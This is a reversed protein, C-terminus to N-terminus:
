LFKLEIINKLKKIYLFKRVTKKTKKLTLGNLDDNSNEKPSNGNVLGNMRFMPPPVPNPPNNMAPPPPPISSGLNGRPMLGNRDDDETLDRFDLDCLILDRDLNKMLEEWHLEIESKKPEPKKLDTEVNTKVDVKNKSKNLEEKAKSILGSLEGVIRNPKEEQPSLPLNSLKQTLDKVTQERKLQQLLKKDENETDTLVLTFFNFILISNMKRKIIDPNSRCTLSIEM